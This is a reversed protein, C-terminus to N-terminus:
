LARATLAPTVDPDNFLLVMKRKFAERAVDAASAAPDLDWFSGGLNDRGTTQEHGLRSAQGDYVDLSLAYYLAARAATDTKWETIELIISREAGTGVAQKVATDTPTSHDLDLVEVAYGKASLSQSISQAFDTALSRGSQTNVDFPIGFGSRQLGVFSPDKDGSMVYPRHDIVALAVRQGNGTLSLEPPASYDVKRGVACATLATITIAILAIWAPNRM